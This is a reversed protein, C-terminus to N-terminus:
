LAAKNAVGTGGGRGERAIGDDELWLFVKERIKEGGEKLDKGEGQHGGGGGDEEDGMSIIM